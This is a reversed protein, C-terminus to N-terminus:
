IQFPMRNNRMPAQLKHRILKVVKDLIWGYCEQPLREAPIDPVANNADILFPKGSADICWEIVNIDLDMFSNFSISMEAIEDLVAESGRGTCSYYEGQDFPRPVWRTFLVESKGICFVRFYRLYKICQQAIILRDVGPPNCCADFQAEDEIVHVDEWGYGDYPKLIFPLGLAHMIREWSTNEASITFEDALRAEPLVITSPVPIDLKRCVQLDMIKNNLSVTFPNNIVYCGQLSISKVMERLYPSLYSCRDLIVRYNSLNKLAGTDLLIIESQPLNDVLDGAFLDGPLDLIGIRDAEVM